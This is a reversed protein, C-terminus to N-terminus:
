ELIYNLTPKYTTVNWVINDLKLRWIFTSIVIDM